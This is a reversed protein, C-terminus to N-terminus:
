DPAPREFTENLRRPTAPLGVQGMAGSATWIGFREAGDCAGQLVARTKSHTRACSGTPLPGKGMCPYLRGRPGIPELTTGGSCAVDEPISTVGFLTVAGWSDMSKLPYKLTSVKGWLATM